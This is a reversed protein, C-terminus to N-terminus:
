FTLSIGGTIRRGPSVFVELNKPNFTAAIDNRNLRHDADSIYLADTLNRINVFIKLRQNDITFNYGASANIMWYNPVKYSETREFGEKLATPEFDAFHKAFLIAEASVFLGKLFRKPAFRLNLVYQNQAADGVHVDSADFRVTAVSDGNDDFVSADAAGKWRWDGLAVATQITLGNAMKYVAKFEGGMHVARLGNINYSFIDGDNNTYSPLSNLPRNNWNTYYANVEATFRRSGFKAGLESGMVKENELKTAVRNSRDFTNNFRSPRNLYGVNAFLNVHKTLNYGAGTKLTTGLIHVWPTEGPTGDANVRFHDIRKYSSNSLSGNVFASVRDKAYEYEAFTGAWRVQGFYKWDYTDGEKYLQSNFGPLTDSADPRYYEGGLLDYVRRYHEGEYIRLDIGGTFTHYKDYKFNFTNLLGAWKHNNM